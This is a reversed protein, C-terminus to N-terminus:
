GGQAGLDSSHQGSDNDRSSSKGGREQETGQERSYGPEPDKGSGDESRTREYDENPRLDVKVEVQHFRSSQKQINEALEERSGQLAAQAEGNAALLRVRLQGGRAELQIDLKGLHDTELTLTLSQRGSLQTFRATIDSALQSRIETPLGAQWDVGTLVGAAIDIPGSLTSLSDLGMWLPFSGFTSEESWIGALNEGSLDVPNGTARALPEATETLGAPNDRTMTGSSATEGHEKIPEPSQTAGVEERPSDASQALKGALVRSFHAGVVKQASSFADDAPSGSARFSTLATWTSDGNPPDASYLSLYM